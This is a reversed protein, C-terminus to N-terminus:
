LNHTFLVQGAMYSAEESALFVISQAIEALNSADGMSIQDGIAKVQEAPLNSPVLMTWVPGPAVGNVRIGRDELSQSLSRTFTVIAGKSSTYSLLQENNKSAALSTTNIITSKEKLFPLTANTMYFMSCLNSQLNREIEQDNTNKNSENPQQEAANNVLIDIQGFQDIAQQVAQHCFQEDGVEGAILLCSRGEQEVMQKTNQADEHADRYIIALDAQEKAFASAIARGLGRDGGVILAVKNQLKGSGSAKMKDVNKQQMMKSKRTSNQKQTPASKAAIAFTM